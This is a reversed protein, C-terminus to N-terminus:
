ELAAIANLRSEVIARRSQSAQDPLLFNPIAERFDDDSMLGRIESVIYARVDANANAIEGVIEARGDILAVIDELDHSLTVDDAGRGHFAELKTAVFYVPKVMRITQGAITMTDASEVAARYWRNTFGLAKADIPMVDIVIDKYRWRCLPAGETTDEALGLAKLRKSLAEYEAYSTANVITDVDKTPRIGAAATDTLLLGTTSGGVFVVQDLIPTLLRVVSEFMARNPDAV